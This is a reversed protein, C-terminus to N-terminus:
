EEYIGGRDFAQDSLSLHTEPLHVVWQRFDAAREDPTARQWLPVPHTVPQAQTKILTVFDAIQRLQSDSLQDIDQKLTDRLM